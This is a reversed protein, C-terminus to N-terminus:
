EVLVLPCDRHPHDVVRMAQRYTTSLLDADLVEPPTGTAAVRGGALLVLRDAYAAGLNLDHLVVVITAGRDARQRLLRM